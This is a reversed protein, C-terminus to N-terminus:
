EKAGHTKLLEAIQTPGNSSALMLATVGNETKANVDVGKELVLSVFDNHGKFSAVMLATWGDKQKTNVDAGKELLLKGVDIHDGQSAAMLPTLGWENRSNVDAGKDLLDQVQEIDGTRAAGILAEGPERKDPRRGFEGEQMKSIKMDRFWDSSGRQFLLILAAIQLIASAVELGTLAVGLPVSLGARTIFEQTDFLPIPTETFHLITLSPIMFVAFAFPIILLIMRAWNRGKGVMYYLGLWIGLWTGSAIILAIFMTPLVLFAVALPLILLVLRAWNRGKGLAYYLFPWVGFVVVAILIMPFTGLTLVEDPPPTRASELFSSITRIGLELYLLTVALKVKPPRQPMSNAEM